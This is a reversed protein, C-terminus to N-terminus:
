LARFKSVVWGFYGVNDAFIRNADVQGVDERYMGVDWLTYQGFMGDVNWCWCWEGWKVWSKVSSCPLLTISTEFIRGCRFLPLDQCKRVFYFPAGSCSASHFGSRSKKSASFLIVSAKCLQITKLPIKCCRWQVKSLHISFSFFMKRKQFVRLSTACSLELLPCHHFM